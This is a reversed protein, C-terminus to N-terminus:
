DSDSDSAERTRKRQDVRSSPAKKGPVPQDDRRIEFVYTRADRDEGRWGGRGGHKGKVEGLTRAHSYGRYCGWPFKFSTVVRLGAHRALDKINWLTYPEGEFITVLIRGPASRNKDEDRGSAMVSRVPKNEDAGHEDGGLSLESDSGEWDDWENDEDDNLLEESPSLLPICAKFFSVLLEQNARVQRNVDTSLGGVHPFNFSIVDWPGGTQHSAFDGTKAHQWAPGQHERRPWGNRIDKGGGGPLGLKRADVSFMVRTLYRTKGPLRFKEENSSEPDTSPGLIDRINRDALPYKSQLAEKSDYSTAFVNKCRHQCLLSRAFSFDGEGVLLIRDKKGFPVIPRRHQNPQHPSKQSTAAGTATKRRKENLKIATKAPSTTTSLRSFAQM